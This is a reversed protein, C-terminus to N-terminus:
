LPTFSSVSFTVDLLKSKDPRNKIRLTKISLMSESSEISHLYAITQGLTVKRLSVDVRTEKYQDSDGAPREEMSEVEVASSRALSDLLTRLNRNERTGQIQAEVESLRSNVEDYERRLRQMMEVQQEALVIESHDGLSSALPQIVGVVLVFLLVVGGAVSVLIRERSSLTDWTSIIRNWLENV